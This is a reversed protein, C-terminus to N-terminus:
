RGATDSNIKGNLVCDRGCVQEGFLELATRNMNVVQSFHLCAAFAWGAQNLPHLDKNMASDNSAPGRIFFLSRKWKHEPQQFPKWNQALERRTEDPESRTRFMDVAWARDPLFFKLDMECIHAATALASHRRTRRPLLTAPAGRCWSAAVVM